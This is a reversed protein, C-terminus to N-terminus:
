SWCDKAVTPCVASRKDEMWFEQLKFKATRSAAMQVNIAHIVVCMCEDLSKGAAAKSGAWTIRDLSM